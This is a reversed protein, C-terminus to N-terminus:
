KKQRGEAETLVSQIEKVMQLNADVLKQPGAYNADFTVKKSKRQYSFEILYRPPKAGKLHSTDNEREDSPFDWLGLESAKRHLYLLESKNLLLHTKVLSDHKNIYQYDGTQSNYKNALSDRTGYQFTFSKFEAFRYPANKFVNGYYYVCYFLFPVVICLLLFIKKASSSM